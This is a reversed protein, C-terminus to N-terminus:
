GHSAEEEFVDGALVDEAKGDLMYRVCKATMAMGLLNTRHQCAVANHYMAATATEAAFMGELAAVSPGAGLVMVLAQTVAETVAPSVGDACAKSLGLLTESITPREQARPQERAEERRRDDRRADEHRADDDRRTDDRRADDRRTDDGRQQRNRRTTRERNPKRKNAKAM